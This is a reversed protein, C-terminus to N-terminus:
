HIFYNLVVLYRILTGDNQTFFVPCTLGIDSLAKRFGSITKQCLEKLSENLITANERELLGLYGLSCSTTCTLEPAHETILKKVLEEQSDDM